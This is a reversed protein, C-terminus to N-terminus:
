TFNGLILRKYTENGICSRIHTLIWCKKYLDLASRYLTGRCFYIRLSGRLDTYSINFGSEQLIRIWSIYCPIRYNKKFNNKNLILSDDGKKQFVRSFIKPSKEILFKYFSVLKKKNLEQVLLTIKLDIKPNSNLSEDKTYISYKIVYNWYFGEFYAEM